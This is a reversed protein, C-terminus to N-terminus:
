TISNAVAIKEFKESAVFNDQFAMAFREFFNRRLNFSAAHVFHGFYSNVTALIKKDSERLKDCNTYNTNAIRAIRMKLNKVARRRVLM